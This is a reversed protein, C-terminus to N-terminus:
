GENLTFSLPQKMKTNVNKGGKKGPRFRWKRIAQLASDEFEPSSSRIVYADRVSGGTDVIFGIEVSGTTGSRKMEYPYQPSPQYTPQPIKDLDSIDFLNAISGRGINRNVPVVIASASTAMDPPPPPQLVQQFPTDVTVISPVDQQMPPAFEPPPEDTQDSEVIEPELPELEPMELIEVVPPPPAEVVEVEEEPFIYQGFLVFGHILFSAILGIILDKNM